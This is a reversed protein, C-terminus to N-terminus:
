TCQWQYCFIRALLLWSSGLQLLAKSVLLATAFVTTASYWRCAPKKARLVAPMLRRRSGGAINLALMM